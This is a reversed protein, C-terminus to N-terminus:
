QHFIMSRQRVNKEHEAQAKLFNKHELYKNAVPLVNPFSRHMISCIRSVNTFFSRFPTLLSTTQHNFKEGQCLSNSLSFVVNDEFMEVSSSLKMPLVTREKRCQDPSIKISFPIIKCIPFSFIAFSPILKADVFMLISYFFDLTSITM